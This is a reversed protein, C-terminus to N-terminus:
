RGGGRGGKPRGEHEVAYRAGSRGRSALHRRVLQSAEGPGVPTAAALLDVAAAAAGIVWARSRGAGRLERVGTDGDAKSLKAGNAKRILPHHAFTAPESRGLLRGLRIQAPTLDTLDEGRIVLSISQRLDDVVVCLAYTWNGQRDRIALDGHVAADGARPGLIGDVWSEEGQGLVVRLTVWPDEAISRDRCSGPCGQGRWPDGHSAAWAAFTSRTCDCAYVLGAARLREVAAVYPASNDHQRIPGADPVFGLWELDELIAAEYTARSRERDHDEIRLLVGAGTIQALGWVFIANAVHGLHLYGTPAPAYRTWGGEWPTARPAPPDAPEIPGTAPEM